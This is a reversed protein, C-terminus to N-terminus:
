LLLMMLWNTELSDKQNILKAMERGPLFNVKLDLHIWYCCLFKQSRTILSLLKGNSGNIGKWKLHPPNARALLWSSVCSSVGQRGEGPIHPFILLSELSFVPPSIIPFDRYIPLFVQPICTISLYCLYKILQLIPFCFLVFFPCVNLKVPFANKKGSEWTWSWIGRKWKALRWVKVGSM